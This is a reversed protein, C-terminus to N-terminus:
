GVPSRGRHGPQRARMLGLLALGALCLVVPGPEPVLASNVVLNDFQHYPVGQEWSLSALGTFTDGFAYTVPELATGLTFTRTVVTDDGRRGTFVIEGGSGPDAFAPGLAISEISFPSGDGARLTTVAGEFSNWLATSGNFDPAAVGWVAFAQDAFIPDVSSTFVFGDEAYSTVYAADPAAHTLSEFDLVVAHAAPACLLVAFAIGRLRRVM